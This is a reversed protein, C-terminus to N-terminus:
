SSSPARRALAVPSLLFQPQMAPIPPASTWPIELLACLDRNGSAVANDASGSHTSNCLPVPRPLAAALLCPTRAAACRNRPTLPREQKSGKGEGCTAFRQTGWWHHVSAASAGGVLASKSGWDRVIDDSCSVRVCDPLRWNSALMTPATGTVCAPSFSCVGPM